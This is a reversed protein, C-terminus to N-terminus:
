LCQRLSAKFTSELTFLIIIGTNYVLSTLSLLRLSKRHDKAAELIARDGGM